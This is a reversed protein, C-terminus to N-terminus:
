LRVEGSTPPTDVGTVDSLPQTRVSPATYPLQDYIGRLLRIQIDSWTAVAPGLRVVHDAVSLLGGDGLRRLAGKRHSESGINDATDATPTLPGLQAVARFIDGESAPLGPFPHGSVDPWCARLAAAFVVILVPSVPTREVGTDAGAVPEMGEYWGLALLPGEWTQNIEVLRRGARDAAAQLDTLTAAANPRPITGAARMRALALGVPESM